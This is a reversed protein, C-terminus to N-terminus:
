AADAEKNGYDGEDEKVFRIDIVNTILEGNEDRHSFKRKLGQRIAQQSKNCNWLDFEYEYGDLLTVIVKVGENDRYHVGSGVLCYDYQASFWNPMPLSKESLQHLCRHYLKAWDVNKSTALGLRYAEFLDGNKEETKNFIAMIALVFQDKNM